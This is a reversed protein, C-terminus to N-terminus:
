IYDRNKNRICKKTLCNTEYKNMITNCIYFPNRLIDNIKEAVWKKIANKMKMYRSPNKIKKNNFYEAIHTSTKGDIYM